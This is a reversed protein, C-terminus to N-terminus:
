YDISSVCSPADQLDNSESDIKYRHEMIYWILHALASFRDKNMKQVIKEISLGKQTEKLKLNAVEEFLLDTQIYPYVCKALNEREKATFSSDQKKQLLRLIGSNVVDTFHTVIKNQNGQAKLDYLCKEAGEVEPQNTTNITDWCGLYENTIPDYSCKLLEDILGAGLGNGDLCVKLAGFDRKVKKVKCAQETFNLTNSITLINPVDIHLIKGMNKDRITRGIAISSQNNKGNESRAVDVGMYFEEEQNNKCIMPVTLTRCKMLNNISVLSGDASGVWEEEYNQLFFTHTTDKKKQLIRSKSSGRGYWCPLMWNSGLVIKGDLNTMQKLMRINREFEDTGKFGTTTYFHIQQNLEQPDVISLKGTTYRPVEVVPELADQYLVNNLLNSEEIRLRTRRQGKSTQANAIADIFAGNKFCIKADGKSFRKFEIENELLPFHILLENTKDELLRAANEKTQASLALKIGPYLIAIVFLDAVEDYTKGYGRSFAGYMSFFRIDARLFIRQDLHLKIGGTKPRFLELFLDPYWRAWSILEYYKEYNSDFTNEKKQIKDIMAKVMM